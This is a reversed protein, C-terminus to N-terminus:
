LVDYVQFWLTHLSEKMNEWPKIAWIKKTRLLIKNDWTDYNM